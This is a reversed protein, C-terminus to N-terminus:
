AYILTCCGDIEHDRYYEDCWFYGWWCDRCLLEKKQWQQYGLVPTQLTRCGTEFCTTYLVHCQTAQATSARLLVATFTAIALFLRCAAPRSVDRLCGLLM